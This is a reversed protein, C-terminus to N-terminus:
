RMILLMAAMDAADAKHLLRVLKARAWMLGWRGM